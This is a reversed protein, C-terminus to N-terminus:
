IEYSEAHFQIHEKVNSDIHSDDFFMLLVSHVDKKKGSLLDEVEFVQNNIMKSIRQPGKWKSELKDKRHVTAELVYDGLDFNAKRILKKNRRMRKESRIREKQQSMSRHMDMLSQKLEERLKIIEEPPLRSTRWSKSNNHYIGCFPNHAPLGTFATVPSLGGLTRGPSHNLAGQVLALLNPRESSKM